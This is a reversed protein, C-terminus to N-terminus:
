EQIRRRYYRGNAPSVPQGPMRLKRELAGDNVMKELLSSLSSRSMNLGKPALAAYIAYPSFVEDQGKSFLFSLVASKVIEYEHYYKGRRNGSGVFTLSEISDNKESNAVEVVEIIEEEDDHEELMDLMDELKQRDLTVWVGSLFESMEGAPVILYTGETTPTVNADIWAHGKKGNYMFMNEIIM